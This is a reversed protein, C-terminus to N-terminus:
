TVFADCSQTIPFSNKDNNDGSEAAWFLRKADKLLQKSKVSVVVDNEAEAATKQYFAWIFGSYMVPEADANSAWSCM